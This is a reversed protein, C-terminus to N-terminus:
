SVGWVELALCEFQEDTLPPNHFTSCYGTTGKNFDSDLWFGYQGQEGGGMSIFDETTYIFFSNSNPWPYVSLAPALKFLFSEGTGYYTRSVHLSESAFGGFVNRKTDQIIIFVGGKDRVRSYMTNLSIGHVNTSYLLTWDHFALSSNLYRRLFKAREQTILSSPASFKVDYEDIEQIMRQQPTIGDMMGVPLPAILDSNSRSLSSIKSLLNSTKLSSFLSAPSSALSVPAPSMPPSSPASSPISRSPSPISATPSSLGPITPSSSFSQPQSKDKPRGGMQQTIKALLPDVKDKDVQFAVTKEAHGDRVTVLLKSIDSDVITWSPSESGTGAPPAASAQFTCDYIDAMFFNIQNAMLGHQAVAPDDLDPEFIVMNSTLTLMGKVKAVKSLYLVHEKMVDLDPQYLARLRSATSLSISELTNASPATPRLVPSSRSSNPVSSPPTFAPTLTAITAARAIHTPRGTWAMIKQYLASLKESPVVFRIVRPDVGSQVSIQLYSERPGEAELAEEEDMFQLDLEYLPPPTRDMIMHCDIIDSISMQIKYNLLGQDILPSEWDPEFIIQRPSATLMGSARQNEKSSIYIVHEKIEDLLQSNLKMAVQLITQPQLHSTVSDIHAACKCPNTDYLVRLNSLLLRYAATAELAISDSSPFLSIIPEIESAPPAATITPTSTPSTLPTTIPTALPTAAPTILPSPANSNNNTSQNETSPQTNPTIDEYVYLLQGTYLTQSNYLQNAFIIDVSSVNFKEAVSTITDKEQVTYLVIKIDEIDKQLCGDSKVEPPDISKDEPNLAFLKTRLVKGLRGKVNKMPSPSQRARAGNVLHLADFM